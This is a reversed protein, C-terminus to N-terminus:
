LYPASREYRKFRPTFNLSADLKVTNIHTYIDHKRFTMPTYCGLINIGRMMMLLLTDESRSLMDILHNIGHNEVM